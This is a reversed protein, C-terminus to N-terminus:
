QHSTLEFQRNDFCLRWDAAAAAAARAV